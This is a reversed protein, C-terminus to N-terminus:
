LFSRGGAGGGAGGGSGAFRSSLGKMNKLLEQPNNVGSPKREIDKERDFPRWPHAARDWDEGGVEEEEEKGNKRKKKGESKADVKEKEIRKKKKKPHAPQQQQQQQQQKELHQELLSKGRAASNFADVAAAARRSRGGDGNQAATADGGGGGMLLLGASVGGGGGGGGDNAREELTMTWVSTDGRVAPTRSSFATQSRQPPAASAVQVEPLETMWTERTPPGSAAARVPGRLDEATGKGQAIRWQREREQQATYEATFRQLEAAERREDVAARGATDQLIQAAAAVAQFAVAAQPHNCKDPHILLSVKWYRKKIDKTPAGPDIGLILYADPPAPSPAAGAATLSSSSLLAGAAATGGGIDMDHRRLVELVRVVEAARDDMSAADIEITIEPPPPGIVSYDEDEDDDDQVLGEARQTEQVEMMAAAAQLIEVPPMTPGLVRRPGAAAPSTENQIEDDDDDDDDDDNNQQQQQEHVAAGAINNGQKEEQEKVEEEAVVTDSIPQGGGQIISEKRLATDNQAPALEEEVPPPPREASAATYSALSAPSEELFPAIFSTVTTTNPLRLYHGASTQKLQTLNDFVTCLRGLLFADDIGSVDLANGTDLHRALQRIESRLEYKYALIERIARAATRGMALQANVTLRKPPPADSDSSSSSDSGSASDRRRRKQDKEKRRDKKHKRKHKKHDKKSGM